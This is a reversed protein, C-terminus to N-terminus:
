RIFKIPNKKKYVKRKIDRVFDNILMRSNNLHEEEEPNYMLVVFVEDNPDNPKIKQIKITFEGDLNDVFTQGKHLEVGNITINELDIFQGENGGRLLRSKIKRSLKTKKSLKSKKKYSKM